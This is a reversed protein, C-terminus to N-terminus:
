VQHACNEWKKQPKLIWLEIENMYTSQQLSIM